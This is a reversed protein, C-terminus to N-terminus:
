GGDGEAMIDYLGSYVKVSLHVIHGNFQWFLTWAQAADNAKAESVLHRPGEDFIQLLQREQKRQQNECTQSENYSPLEM